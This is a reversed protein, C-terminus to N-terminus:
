KGKKIVWHLQKHINHYELIIYITTDWIHQNSANLSMNRPIGSTKPICCHLVTNVNSRHIPYMRNTEMKMTIYCSSILFFHVFEDVKVIKKGWNTRAMNIWFTLDSSNPSTIFRWLCIGQQLWNWLLWLMVCCFYKISNNATKVQSGFWHLNQTFYTGDKCNRQYFLIVRQAM